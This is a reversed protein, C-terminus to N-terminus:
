RTAIGERDGLLPWSQALAILGVLCGVVILLFASNAGLVMEAEARWAYMGYSALGMLGLTTLWMWAM